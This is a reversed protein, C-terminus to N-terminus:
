MAVMWLSAVSVSHSMASSLPCLARIPLTQMFRLPNPPYTSFDAFSLRLSVLIYREPTFELLYLSTSGVTTGLNATEQSLASIIPSPSMALSYPVRM